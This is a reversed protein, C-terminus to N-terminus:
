GAVEVALNEQAEDANAGTQDAATEAAETSIDEEGSVLEVLRLVARRRRIRNRLGTRVDSSTRLRRRESESFEPNRLLDDLASNIEAGSVEISEADAIAGIVLSTKVNSTATDRMDNRVDSESQNATELYTEFSLHAREFTEQLEELMRTTEEEILMPPIEIFTRSTVAEISDGVLKEDAEMRRQLEINNRLRECLEDLTQLDTISQAFEDDLDPLVRRKIEKVLIRLFLTKGALEQDAYLDPLPLPIERIDGRNSDVLLEALGPLAPHPTDETETSLDLDFNERNLVEEGAVTGNVNMTIVDGTQAPRVVPELTANRQQLEHLLVDVDSEDVEVQQREVHLSAYDPLQVVPKISVTVDFRFSTGPTVHEDGNDGPQIDAEAIPTINEQDIAKRYAWRVAEDTAEHLFFEHGVMREVVPRPAKGRRFGPVNLRQLLSKYTRDLAQDVEKPELEIKLAVRSEPLKTVELNM